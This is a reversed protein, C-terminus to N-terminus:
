NDPAGDDIWAAISDIVSVALPQRNLPMLEGQINIGRLKNILYSSDSHAPYIYLLPPNSSMVNKISNLAQGASLDPDVSNSAHCSSIACTPTFVNNQIDSFKSTVTNNNNEEECESIIQDECSIIIVALLLIVIKINKM